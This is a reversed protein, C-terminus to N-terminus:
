RKHTVKFTTTAPSGTMYPDQWSYAALQMLGSSMTHPVSVSVVPEAISKLLEARQKEAEAEKAQEDALRAKWQASHTKYEDHADVELNEDVPEEQVEVVPEQVVEALEPDFDLNLVCGLDGNRLIMVPEVPEPNVPKPNVVMILIDIVDSQIVKCQIDILSDLFKELDIEDVINPNTKHYIEYSNRDIKKVTWGLKIANYVYIVQIIYFLMLRDSNNM